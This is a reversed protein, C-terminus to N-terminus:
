NEDPKERKKKPNGCSGHGEVDKSITAMLVCPLGWSRKPGLSRDGGVSGIDSCHWCIQPASYIRLKRAATQDALTPQPALYPTDRKDANGSDTAATTIISVCGEGFVCLKECLGDMTSLCGPMEKLVARPAASLVRVAPLVRVASLM